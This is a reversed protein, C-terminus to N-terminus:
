QAQGERHPKLMASVEARSYRRHGLPLRIVTLLGKKAWRTVAKPDVRAMRAVEAPTMLDDAEFPQASM